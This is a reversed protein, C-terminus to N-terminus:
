VGPVGGLLAGGCWELRPTGACSAQHGNCNERRRYDNSLDFVQPPPPGPAHVARHTSHSQRVDARGSGPLGQALEAAVAPGVEAAGEVVQVLARFRTGQDLEFAQARASPRKKTTPEEDSDFDLDM